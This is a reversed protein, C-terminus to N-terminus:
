TDNDTNTLGKFFTRVREMDNAMNKSAEEIRLKEGTRYKAGLSKLGRISVAQYSITNAMREIVNVLLDLKWEFIPSMDTKELICDTYLVIQEIESKYKEYEPTGYEEMEDKLCNIVRRYTTIVEPLHNERCDKCTPVQLYCGQSFDGDGFLLIHYHMCDPDELKRETSEYFM